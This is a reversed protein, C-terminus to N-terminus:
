TECWCGTPTKWIKCFYEQSLIKVAQTKLLLSKLLYFVTIGTFSHWESFKYLEM